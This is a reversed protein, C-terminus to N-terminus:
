AGHENLNELDCKLICPDTNYKNIIEDYISDLKSEDKSLMLVNSGNESLYYALSKGIGATAGTILINKDSLLDKKM